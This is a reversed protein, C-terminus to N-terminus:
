LIQLHFSFRTILNYELNIILFFCQVTLEGETNKFTFLLSENDFSFLYSSNGFRCCETDTCVSFEAIEMQDSIQLNPIESYCYPINSSVNM